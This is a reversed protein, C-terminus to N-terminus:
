RNKAIMSAVAGGSKGRVANLRHGKGRRTDSVDEEIAVADDIALGRFAREDALPAIKMKKGAGLRGKGREIM